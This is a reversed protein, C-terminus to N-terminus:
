LPPDIKEDELKAITAFLFKLARDTTVTTWEQILDGIIADPLV